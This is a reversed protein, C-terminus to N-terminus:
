LPYNGCSNYRNIGDENLVNFLILCNEKCLFNIEESM